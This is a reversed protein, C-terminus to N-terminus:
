MAQLLSYWETTYNSLYMKFVTKNSIGLTCFDVELYLHEKVYIIKSLLITGETNWFSGNKQELETSCLDTSGFFFTNFEAVGVFKSGYGGPLQLCAQSFFTSKREREAINDVFIEKPQCGVLKSANTPVVPFPVCGGPVKARFFGCFVNQLWAHNLIM